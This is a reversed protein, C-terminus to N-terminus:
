EQVDNLDRRLLSNFLVEDLDGARGSIDLNNRSADHSQLELSGLSSLAGSRRRALLLESSPPAETALLEQTRARFSSRRTSVSSSMQETPPVSQHLGLSTSGLLQMRTREVQLAMEDIEDDKDALAQRSRELSKTTVLLQLKLEEVQQLLPSSEPVSPLISTTFRTRDLQEGSNVRELANISGGEGVVESKAKQLAAELIRVKKKLMDIENEEDLLDGTLLGLLETSEATNVQVEGSKMCLHQAFSTNIEKPSIVWLNMIGKGKVSIPARPILNAGFSNGLWKDLSCGNRRNVENGLANRAADSINIMGPLGYQEM